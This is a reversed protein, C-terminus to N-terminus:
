AAADDWVAGDMYEDSLGCVASQPASSCVADREDESSHLASDQQPTPVLGGRKKAHRIRRLTMYSSRVIVSMAAEKRAMKARCERQWEHGLTYMSRSAEDTAYIAYITIGPLHDLLRKPDQLKADNREREKFNRPSGFTPRFTCIDPVAQSMRTPCLALGIPNPENRFGNLSNFESSKGLLKMTFHVLNNM